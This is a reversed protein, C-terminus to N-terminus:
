LGNSGTYFMLTLTLRYQQQTKRVDVHFLKGGETM